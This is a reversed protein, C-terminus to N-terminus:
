WETRTVWQYEARGHQLRLRERLKENAQQTKVILKRWARQREVELVGEAFSGWASVTPDLGLLWAQASSAAAATSTVTIPLQM